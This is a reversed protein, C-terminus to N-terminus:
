DIQPYIQRATLLSSDEQTTNLEYNANVVKQKTPFFL